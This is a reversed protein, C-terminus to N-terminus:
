DREWRHSPNFTASAVWGLLLLLGSAPEPVAAGAGPPIINGFREAWYDFDGDDIMGNNNGDAGSGSPVASTNLAKRWIVYDAADVVGNGNYDGTPQALPAPTSREYAFNGLSDFQTFTLDLYIDDTILHVVANHIFINDLLEFSPGGYAQAWTTYTLNPGNSASITQGMNGTVIATAWETDAPSSFQVYATEGAAVNYIGGEAPGGRTIWVNDTMRDQHEPLTPNSSGAKSFTITPGTWIVPDAVAVDLPVFSLQMVVALCIIVWVTSRRAM